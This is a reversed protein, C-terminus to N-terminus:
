ISAKAKIEDIFEQAEEHLGLLIKFGAEESIKGDGICHHIKIMAIAGAYFANRMEKFQVDPARPSIVEKKFSEWESQMSNM